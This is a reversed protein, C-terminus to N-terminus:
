ADVREWVSPDNNRWNGVRKSVPWLQLDESPYPDLLAKLEEPTAPEEGLWLPWEDDALIVPMRDHLQALLSNEVATVHWEPRSQRAM